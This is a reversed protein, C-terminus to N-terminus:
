EEQQRATALADMAINRAEDLRTLAAAMGDKASIHPGGANLAVISELAEYLAPAASILAANAASSVTGDRAVWSADDETHVSLPFPYKETGHWILKWPGPTHKAMTM